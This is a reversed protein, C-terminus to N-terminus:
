KNRNIGVFGCGVTDPRILRPPEEGGSPFGSKSKSGGDRPQAEGQTDESNTSSITQFLDRRNFRLGSGFYAFLSKRWSGQDGLRGEASPGGRESCAARRSAHKAQARAALVFKPHEPRLAPHSPSTHVQFSQIQTWTRPKPRDPLWRLRSTSCITCCIPSNFCM